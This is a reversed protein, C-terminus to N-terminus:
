MLWLFGRGAAPAPAMAIRLEEEADTEVRVGGRLSGIPIDALVDGHASLRWRHSECVESAGHSKRGCGEVGCTRPM